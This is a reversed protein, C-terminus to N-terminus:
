NALALAANFARVKIAARDGTLLSAARTEEPGGKRFDESEIVANYVGWLTGKAADTDMGTGAGAFLAHATERRHNTISVWRDFYEERKERIEKPLSPDVEKPMPYAVEIVHTLKAKTAKTSALLECAEKIVATKAEATEYCHRMWQALRLHAGATHQIVHTESALKLSLRVTNTCVARVPTVVVQAGHRGDMGNLAMLYNKMEDGKVSFQPLETTIFLQKGSRIAGITEVPQAVHEDWMRCFDAPTVLSYDETVVNWTEQEADETAPRHLAKFPIEILEGADDYTFVPRREVDYIGIRELGELAGVPEHVVQGIGHWAPQRNDLFREGFIEHAM